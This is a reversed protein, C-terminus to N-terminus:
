KKKTGNGIQETVQSRLRFHSFVSVKKLAEVEWLSSCILYTFFLCQQKNKTLVSESMQM